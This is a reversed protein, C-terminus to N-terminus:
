SIHKYHRLNVRNFQKAGVKDSKVPHVKKNLIDIAILDLRWPTDQLSNKFLYNHIARQIKKKKYYTLEKEPNGFQTDSKTKVEIFVFQNNDRAIVDIEGYKGARYNQEIITYKNKKLYTVAIEEGRKGVKQRYTKM